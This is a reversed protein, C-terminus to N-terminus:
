KRLMAPSGRRMAWVVLAGIAVLAFVVTVIVAAWTGLWVGGFVALAVAGVVVAVPVASFERRTDHQETM